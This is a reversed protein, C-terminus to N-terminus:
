EHKEYYTNVCLMILFLLILICCLTIAITIFISIHFIGYLVLSIFCSGSLVYNMIQLTKHGSKMTVYTDREDMDEKLEEVIGKQFFAIFFSYVSWTLLIIASILFRFQFGKLVMAGFCITALIITIIGISFDKKSKIEKM